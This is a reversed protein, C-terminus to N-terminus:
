TRRSSIYMPYMYPAAYVRADPSWADRWIELLPRGTACASATEDYRGTCVLLQEDSGTASSPGQSPTTASPTASSPGQSATTASSVSICRAESIAGGASLDDFAATFCPETLNFTWYPGTYSGRPRSSCRTGYVAVHSHPAAHQLVFSLEKVVGTREEPLAADVSIIITDCLGLEAALGRASYSPPGRLVRIAPASGHWGSGAFVVATYRDVLWEKQMAALFASSWAFRRANIECVRSPRPGRKRMAELLVDCLADCMM